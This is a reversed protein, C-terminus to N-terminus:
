VDRDGGDHVGIAIRVADGEHHRSVVVGAAGDREVAVEDGLRCDVSNGASMAFQADVDPRSLFRESLFNGDSLGFSGAKLCKGTRAPDCVVELLKGPHRRRNLFLEVVEADEMVPLDGAEAGGGGVINAFLYAQRTADVAPDGLGLFKTGLLM